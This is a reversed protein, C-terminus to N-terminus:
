LNKLHKLVFLTANDVDILEKEWGISNIGVWSITQSQYIALTQTEILLPTFSDIVTL